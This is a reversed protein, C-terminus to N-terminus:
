NLLYILQVTVCIHGGSLSRNQTLENISSASSSILGLITIRYLDVNKNRM